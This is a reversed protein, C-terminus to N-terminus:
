KLDNNKKKQNENEIKGYEEIVSKILGIMSFIFAVAVCGIFMWPETDYKKDLWRGILVGLLVPAAIWASMRAFMTLAPQWWDQGAQGDEPASSHRPAQM